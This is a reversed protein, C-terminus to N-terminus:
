KDTGDGPAHTCTPAHACESPYKKGGDESIDLRWPYALINKQLRENNLQINSCKQRGRMIYSMNEGEVSREMQLQKNNRESEPTHKSSFVAGGSLTEANIEATSLTKIIIIKHLIMSGPYVYPGPYQLPLSTKQILILNYFLIGMWPSWSVKM